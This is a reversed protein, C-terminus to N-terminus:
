VDNSILLLSSKRSLRAFDSLSKDCSDCMM